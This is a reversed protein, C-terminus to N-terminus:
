LNKLRKGAPEMGQWAIDLMGAMSQAFFRSAVRLGADFNPHVESDNMLMFLAEKNDVVCFRSEPKSLHRVDAFSLLAKAADASEKTVPAAIRVSVGKRAAEQLAPALMEAKRALGGASTVILVSKEANRIMSEMQLQINHRGKVNASMDTADVFGIGSSHLMELEKVIENAKGSDLKKSHATAEMQVLKKVKEVVEKPKVAIYKIPKGTKMSIIGKKELTDLVDYARSRPVGSIEALEGATSVGRSLLATWVKAEYLNLKFFHRLNNLFDKEVVM